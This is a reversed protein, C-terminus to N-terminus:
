MYSSFIAGYSYQHAGNSGYTSQLVSTSSLSMAQAGIQYGYSATSNFLSKVKSMESDMFKKEDIALSHDEKITIGVDKFTNAYASTTSIMTNAINKLAMNDSENASTIASNYDKVFSSVAKYLEKTNYNGESDVKFLSKDGTTYLSSATNALTIADEKVERYDVNISSEEEKPKSVQTNLSTAAKNYYSSVLSRYGSTRMLSFDKALSFIDNSTNTSNKIVNLGSNLNSIRSNYMASYNTNINM